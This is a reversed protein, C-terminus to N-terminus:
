SVLDFTLATASLPPLLTTAHGDHIAVDAFPQSTVVQQDEYTNEAKPDQGTVIEASALSRITRDALTISVPAPEHSVATPSSSTYSIGM